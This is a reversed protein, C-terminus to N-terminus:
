QTESPPKSSFFDFINQGVGSMDLIMLMCEFGILM